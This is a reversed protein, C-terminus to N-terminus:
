NVGDCELLLEALGNGMGRGPVVMPLYRGAALGFLQNASSPLRFIGSSPGHSVSFKLNKGM